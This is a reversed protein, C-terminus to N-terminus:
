PNAAHQALERIALYLHYLSSAPSPEEVFGGDPRMRERWVGRAPTDLYAVLGNAAQLAAEQEGLVLAAKIHETQPWLRAGADRVSLDPGLTNVVVGRRPDFAGRGVDFLRRAVVEGCPYGRMGSWRTLLWAWEFQHGPEIVNAEDSLRSWSEDYFESLAGTAPDIFRTLALEVLEDSLRGWDPDDSIPEWALTAELLHMIANAQFAREGVERFGGVPHRFLELARRLETAAASAGEMPSLRHLASFALLVFANDYLRATPDIIVGSLDCRSAFLGNPLRVASRLAHLAAEAWPGEIGETAASAFVFAQRAQVLTRRYPDALDGRWTLAERFAGADMGVTAWLPLAATRLWLGLDEAAGALSVFRDPRISGLYVERMAQEEGLGRVLVAGPEVIVALRSVGVVSVQVGEPSRVLSHSTGVVRAGSSLSNGDEDRVSAALVSTWSGLDSWPFDVALVAARDTHEMVARDFALKPTEAFQPGLLFDGGDSFGNTTAQEVASLIDPAWLRLESLFTRAHGIFIGSNWLGGSAILETAREASPKEQFDVVRQVGPGRSEPSIYGYASSPSDPRIGMVLLMDADAGKIASNVAAQVALTLPMHHDAPLAVMVGDPARNIVWLAAAAMAAATERGTPELLVQASAGASSIQEHILDRHDASGVVLVEGGVALLQALAVAAQFGSVPGLLPLFPKPRWPQSL